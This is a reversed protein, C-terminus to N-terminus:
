PYCVLLGLDPMALMDTVVDTHAHFRKTESVSIEANVQKICTHVYTQKYANVQKICTHVYTQKYAYTHITHQHVCKSIKIYTYLM